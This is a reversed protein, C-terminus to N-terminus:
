KIIKAKRAMFHIKSKEILSNIKSPLVKEAFREAGDFFRAKRSKRGEIFVQQYIRGCSDPNEYTLYKDMFDKRRYANEKDKEEIHVLADLLEEFTYVIPGPAESPLDFYVGRLNESYEKLDYTYFVMPRNLLAYDFMVSSYDTVLIDAIKYLPEISSYETLDIVFDNKPLDYKQSSLHHIRVAFVYEDKLAAELADFDLLFDFVGRTRWTPAYLIVKKDLPIGLEKKLEENQKQDNQYLTDTRPYGTKLITKYFRFWRYAMKDTFVGQSILYDWNMTKRIYKWIDNNTNFDSKVDLGLSKYPTGHMTQIEIQNNRKKFEGPFNVDNLLYKATALYRYYEKSRYRVRVGNGSIPMHPDKFAWVCKYDPHNRDMYEYLEKPSGSYKTGWMSEFLITKEEVPLKKFQKYAIKRNYKRKAKSNDDSSWKNQILLALHQTENQMLSMHLSTDPDIDINELSAYVLYDNTETQLKIERTSNYFDNTLANDGFDITFVFTGNNNEAEALYANGGKVPDDMILKANKGEASTQHDSILQIELRILSDSVDTKRLIAYEKEDHVNLEHSKDSVAILYKDGFVFERIGDKSTLLKEGNEGNEFTVSGQIDSAAFCFDGGNNKSGKKRENNCILDVSNVAESVRLILNSDDASVSEVFCKPESVVFYVANNADFFLKISKGNKIFTKGAYNNILTQSARRLTYSGECLSNNYHVRIFYKGPKLDGFVQKSDITIDFGSGDFNYQHLRNKETLYSDGYVETLKPDKKKTVPLDKELFDTDCILSVNIEHLDTEPMDIRWFFSHASLILNGDQIQIDDIANAPDYQYDSATLKADVNFISNPLDLYYGGDRSFSDVGSYHYHHYAITKKLMKVDDNLLYVYKQRYIIPLDDILKTDIHEKIFDNLLKMYQKATKEPVSDCMNIYIPLDVELVKKQLAKHLDEEKVTSDFFAFLRRLVELRDTINKLKTNSQTISKTAGDRVRWLYEAKYVVAVHNALYHMPTTVPIDEFLMWNEPFAFQHKLFFDRNILKNWATTDYLLNHNKTVHTTETYPFDKFLRLHLISAWSKKSNMRAVNCIAMESGTSEAKRFMNEYMDDEVVDDSDIFSLYKGNAFQVGYNRASGLGGNEKYYYKFNPYKKEYEKAIEASNDTSGDDILLVEINLNGKSSAISDLCPALYESVNYIPVIVSIDIQNKSM